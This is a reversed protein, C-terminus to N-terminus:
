ETLDFGAAEYAPVGAAANYLKTFGKQKLISCGLSSRYGSRCMLVMSKTSDLEEARTRLDPAPINVSGPVHSEEYEESSRVDVLTASDDSTVMQHIQHPSLQPIHDTSYGASAWAHMGGELFGVTRDLGVRRLWLQAERAEEADHSVLLIDVDPPIVWGAFTAFNGLEMPISYSEPIHHGGYADYSRVDLTIAEGEKLYDSFEEPSLSKLKTLSRLLVPGKRNIESCRGFHDPLPPMDSTLSEVFDERDDIGLPASYRKEYGITSWRKGGLARGCLSGAGHAPYMECFDPLVLLKERISDYLKSALTKAKGPFMDPRGVDGVLLTDGTFVAPPEEGRSLDNVIYCVGDPTHGPTDVVHYSMDEIKFTTGEAVPVHDFQCNGSAPAYIDAGTKEALDLHGSVFDAHLHTELVHTITLNLDKASQVYHDVDRSPDVIACSENGGVLYSSHAIGEVFFQQIIM